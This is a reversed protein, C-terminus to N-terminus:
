TEASSNPFFSVFFHRVHLECWAVPVGTETDLGKYVTKFSGRGIERDYKLFRNNPCQDIAKEDIIEESINQDAPKSSQQQVPQPQQPVQTQTQSQKDQISNIEQTSISPEPVATSKSATLSSLLDSDNVRKVTFKDGKLLLNVTIM